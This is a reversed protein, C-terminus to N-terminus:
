GASCCCVARHVIRWGRRWRPRTRIPVWIDTRLPALVGTFERPAVGVITYSESESRIRQGLVTSSGNYRRQWVSHSIVALSEADDAFWRGLAPRIGFVDAYNASVVEATVFESHGDVDLDSEMPFSITLGSLSRSRTQFDRYTPYSFAPNRGRRIGILREPNSIAMPRFLISDLMSFIATNVGVGLGLCLLSLLTFGPSRGLQRLAHRVDRALDDIM